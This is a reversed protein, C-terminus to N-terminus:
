SLETKMQSSHYCQCIFESDRIIEEFVALVKSNHPRKALLAVTMSKAQQEANTPAQKRTSEQAHKGTLIALM